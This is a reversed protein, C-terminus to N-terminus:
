DEVSKLMQEVLQSHRAHNKTRDLRIEVIASRNQALAERYHTEAERFDTRTHALQGLNVHAPALTPDLALAQRYAAQAEEPSTAELEAALDYWQSATLRLGRRPLAM